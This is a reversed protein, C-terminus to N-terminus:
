GLVPQTAYDFTGGTRASASAAEYDPGITQEVAPVWNPDAVNAGSVAVIKQGKEMLAVIDGKEPNFEFVRALAASDILATATWKQSAAEPAETQIALINRGLGAFVGAALSSRPTLEVRPQSRLRGAVEGAFDASQPERAGVCSGGDGFDVRIAEYGGNAAVVDHLLADCRRGDSAASAAVAASTSLTRTAGRLWLRTRVAYEETTQRWQRDIGISLSQHAASALVITILAVPVIIFGVLALLRTKVDPFSTLINMAPAGLQLRL